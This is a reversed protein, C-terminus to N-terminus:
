GDYIAEELLLGVVARHGADNYWRSRGSPHPVRRWTIGDVTVPHVLPAGAPLGLAAWAAQGLVLVQPRLAQVPQRMTMETVFRQAAVRAAPGSWRKAHLLNRRDLQLYTGRGCNTLAHVMRWLRWGSCGPPHPFLAHAPDASLPNNMGLLVAHM